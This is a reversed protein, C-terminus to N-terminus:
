YPTPTPLTTPASCCWRRTMSLSSFASATLGVVEGDDNVTTIVTVGSPFSGLVNKYATADIM